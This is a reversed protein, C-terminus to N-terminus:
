KVVYKVLLFFWCVLVGWSGGPSRVGSGVPFPFGVAGGMRQGGQHASAHQDGSEISPEGPSRVDGSSRRAFGAVSSDVSLDSSSAWGAENWHLFRSFSCM